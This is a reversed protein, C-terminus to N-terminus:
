EDKPKKYKLTIIYGTTILGVIFCQIFLKSINIMAYVGQGKPEPPFFLFAYGYGMQSGLGTLSKIHWPPFLVMLVIAIIGCWLTILQKKNM